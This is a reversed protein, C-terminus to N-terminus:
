ESFGHLIVESLERTYDELRKEKSNELVLKYKRKQFESMTSEDIKIYKKYQSDETNGYLQGVAINLFATTLSKIDTFDLVVPTESEMKEELLKAIYKAKESSVALSTKLIDSIVLREEM